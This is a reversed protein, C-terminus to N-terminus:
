KIIGAQRALDVYFKTKEAIFGRAKGYPVNILAFGDNEMRTVFEPDRNVEGVITSIKKRIKEPTSKPVAVGRYAGSVIDFGLERFTPVDPFRAHRKKTGIALMRINAEYKAAASSYNSGGDVQGGIIAQVTPGTGRMAVYTTKIGALKSFRVQLLHNATGKGSGALTLKGPNAKAYNILDQLTKFPSDKRVIIADPTYEFIYVVTIDRTKFGVNKQRPKIIIHPLNMGMITYGDGKLSNLQAWGVAGGGGPKYEVVLDIGRKKFFPQQHRATIDSEGGPNFPIIYHIPKDPYKALVATAGFGLAIVAAYLLSKKLPTKM